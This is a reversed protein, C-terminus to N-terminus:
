RGEVVTVPVLQGLPGAVRAADGLGVFVSHRPAFLSGAAANVAADDTTALAAAHRALYDAGAGDALASLLSNALGAQTAVSLALVGLAYRRADAIEEERFGEVAARGMEYLTETLAAATVESGVDLTAVMRSGALLHEISSHPSYTYGRRERLNAMLRSTFLGGFALNALQAAPWDPHRRGPALAGVRLNTQVAGPRNELVLAGPRPLPLGAPLETEPGPGALWGALGVEVRELLEPASLGGVVAVVARDPRLLETHLARLREPGVRGAAGPSPLPRAYPHGRHLVRQLRAGVRVHPLSWSIRLEEAIRARDARVVDDPYTAQTLVEAVLRVLADFHVALSSASIRLRDEDASVTIRGGIRELAAALGSRDYHASGGLISEALVELAAAAAFAPEPFPVALRLEVMPVTPREAAVAPVRDALLREAVEPVAPVALAGLSPRRAARSPSKQPEEPPTPSM